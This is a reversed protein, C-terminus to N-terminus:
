PRRGSLDMPMTTTPFGPYSFGHWAQPWRCIRGHLPSGALIRPPPFIPLRRSSCWRQRKPVASLRRAPTAPSTPAFATNAANGRVVDASRTDAFSVSAHEWKGIPQSAAILDSRGTTADGIEYIPPIKFCRQLPMVSVSVRPACSAAATVKIWHGLRLIGHASL